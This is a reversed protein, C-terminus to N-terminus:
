QLSQLSLFIIFVRPSPPSPFLHFSLRSPPYLFFSSSTLLILPLCFTFLFLFPFLCYSSILFTDSGPVILSPIFSPLPTQPLSWTHLPFPLTLSLSHSPTQLRPCHTFLSGRYRGHSDPTCIWATTALIASQTYYQM